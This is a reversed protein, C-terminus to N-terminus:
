NGTSIYGEVHKKALEEHEAYTKAFYAKGQKDTLFYIYDHKVPNNIAEYSKKSPSSIPGPPLGLNVYTNYKSTNKLDAFSLEGTIKDLSYFVSPDTQLPMSIALRNLFVGAISSNDSASTSEKELISAMTIYEHITINKNVGRINWVKSNQNYLPVVRDQTAKVMSKILIEANNKNTSDIDYSAPYLYGELKYKLDKNDLESTILEPFEQKLKNIFNSDNVKNIFEDKSIDTVKEVKAAIKLINDGEIITLNASSKANEKSTLVELIESLNMNKSVEFNGVYFEGNSNIRSYFKFMATSRILNNKYLVDAIATSGYNEKVEIKVKESIDKDVPTTLFYIYSLALMILFMLSIFTLTIINLSKKKNKKRLEERRRIKEEKM